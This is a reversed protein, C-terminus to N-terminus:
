CLARWSYWQGNYLERVYTNYAETNWPVFFQVIGSSVGTTSVSPNLIIFTGQQKQPTNTAFQEPVLYIGSKTLINIDNAVNNRNALIYNKQTNFNNKTEVLNSNLIIM